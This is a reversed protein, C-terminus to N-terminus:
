VQSILFYCATIFIFGTVSETQPSGNRSSRYGTKADAMELEIQQSKVPSSHPNVKFFVILRSLEIPNFPETKTIGPSFLCSVIQEKYDISAQYEFCCVILYIELATLFHALLKVSLPEQLSSRVQKQKKFSKSIRKCYDISLTSFCMDEM